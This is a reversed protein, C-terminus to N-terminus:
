AQSQLICVTDNTRVYSYVQQHMLIIIIITTNYVEQIAHVFLFLFCVKLVLVFLYYIIIQLRIILHTSRDNIYFRIIIAKSFRRM